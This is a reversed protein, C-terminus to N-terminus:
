NRVAKIIHMILWDKKGRLLMAKRTQRDYKIIARLITARPRKGASDKKALECDEIRQTQKVMTEYQEFTHVMTRKRAAKRHRLYNLITKGSGGRFVTWVVYVQAKEKAALSYVWKRRRLKHFTADLIPLMGKKLCLRARKCLEKYANDKVKKTRNNKEDIFAVTSSHKRGKLRYKASSLVEAAVGKAQFYNRIKAAATTKGSTPYGYMMVITKATGESM